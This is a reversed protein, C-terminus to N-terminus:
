NAALSFGTLHRSERSTTVKELTRLSSEHWVLHAPTGTKIPPHKQGLQIGPKNRQFLCTIQKDPNKRDGNLGRPILTSFLPRSIMPKSELDPSISPSKWHRVHIKM